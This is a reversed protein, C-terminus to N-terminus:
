KTWSRGVHGEVEFPVSTIWKEAAMKMLARKKIVFDPSDDKHTDTVIEDYVQMMINSRVKNQIIHRRILYMAYKTIDANVGQCLFNGGEREIGNMVGRFKGDRRGLPFIPEGKKNVADPLPIRWNRRRGGINALYGEKVAFRGAGRLYEVGVRYESCYAKYLAKAEDLSIPFGERNLTEYLSFDSSGYIIGFNMAKAHARLPDGPKVEKRYLKSAVVCHADLGKQFIELLGPDQSIEAWIRLEAGSYDDTEVLHDDDYALFCNRMRKDKPINLLSVQKSPDHRKEGSTIRGTSAGIQNISSHIRGTEEYIADVFNQGYTTYAKVHKRYQRILPVVTNDKVKGLTKKDSKTIREEFIEGDRSTQVVKIKLKNLLNVVQEPSAYNIDVQGFLDRGWVPAAFYDLQERVREAAAEHERAIEMWREADLRVGHLEMDGFCPVCACEILYTSLLGLPKMRERMEAEIHILPAVDGAAYDLQRPSFPGTHNVFSKQMEVDKHEGTYKGIIDDLKFGWDSMGGDLVKEGLMVDFTREVRIDHNRKMMMYDFKLNHGICRIHEQFCDRLPEINVVRADILYQKEHNGLQVLIPKNKIPCLGTTETDFGWTGQEIFLPILEILRSTETVLEWNIM